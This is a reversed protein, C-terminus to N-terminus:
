TNKELWDVVAMWTTMHDSKFHSLADLKKLLPLTKFEEVTLLYESNFHEPFNPNSYRWILQMAWRHASDLKGLTEQKFRPALFPIKTNPDVTRFAVEKGKGTPQAEDITDELKQAEDHIDEIAASGIITASADNALIPHYAVQFVSDPAEPYANASFDYEMESDFTRIKHFWKLKKAQTLLVPETKKKGLVTYNIAADVNVQLLKPLTRMETDRSVFSFPWFHFGPELRTAESIIQVGYRGVYASASAGSKHFETDLRVSMRSVEVPKTARFFLTGMVAGNAHMGESGLLIRFPSLDESTDSFTPAKSKRTLAAYVLLKGQGGNLTLEHYRGTILMDSLNLYATGLVQDSTVANWDKVVFTFGTMYNLGQQDCELHVVM